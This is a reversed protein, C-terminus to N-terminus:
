GEDMHDFADAAMELPLLCVIVLGALIDVPQFRDCLFEALGSYRDLRQDPVAVCRVLDDLEGDFVVDIKEHHAPVAVASQFVDEEAGRDRLYPVFQRYRNQHHLLRRFTIRFNDPIPPMSDTFGM